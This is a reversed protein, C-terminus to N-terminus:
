ARVCTRVYARVCTCVYVRVCTCVYVRVCTCAGTQDVSLGQRVRDYAREAEALEAEARARAAAVHANWAVVYGPAGPLVACAVVYGPTVPWVYEPEHLVGASRPAVRSASSPDVMTPGRAASAASAAQRELAVLSSACLGPQWRGAPQGALRRRGDPWEDDLRPKRLRKRGMVRAYREYSCGSGLPSPAWRRKAADAPGDLSAGVVGWQPGMRRSRVGGGRGPAAATTPTPTDVRKRWMKRQRVKGTVTWGEPPQGYLARCLEEATVAHGCRARAREATLGPLRADVDGQLARAVVLDCEPSRGVAVAAELVVSSFM